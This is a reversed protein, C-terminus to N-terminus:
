VGSQPQDYYTSKCYEILGEFIERCYPSSKKALEKYKASFQDYSIELEAYPRWKDMDGMILAQMKDVTWVFLSEDDQKQEYNRMSAVMDNFEGFEDSLRELSEQERQIKASRESASAFTNTDGAYREVFDHAIAYKLIKAIDLDIKYKDHIYWCLLAVTLSHEIDNEHRSTGVLYHSRDILSLDVTMQQLAFLLPDPRSM